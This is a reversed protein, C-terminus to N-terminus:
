SAERVALFSPLAWGTAECRVTAESAIAQRIAEM